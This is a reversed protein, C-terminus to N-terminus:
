FPEGQTREIQILLRDILFNQLDRTEDGAGSRLHAWEEFLTAALERAGKDFAREALFIRGDKALGHISPGLTDCCIIPFEEIEIGAQLLMWKARQMMTVQDTTLKLGDGPQMDEIASARAFSIVKANAKTHEASMAVERAAEKFAPGPSGYQPVDMFHEQFQDGCTLIRRLIKRDDIQAIAKELRTECNWWHRATRDETLDLTGLINYTHTLPRIPTYIRVGRYFVHRSIGEHIDAYETRTVPESELLIERRDPWIDDLGRVLFITSEASHKGCIKGGDDALLYTGGEDRCNSALERFAMWPQWNKGLMTTFGLREGDMKVLDFEQGRISTREATFEHRQGDRLLEISGGNRLITAIAFKLGTGFYGIPSDAEKVSVGMTLAADLDIIGPNRFIIM